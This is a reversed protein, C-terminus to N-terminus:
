LKWPTALGGAKMLTLSRDPQRGSCLGASPTTQQMGPAARTAQELPKGSNHATDHKESGPHCRKILDSNNKISPEDPNLLSHTPYAHLQQAPLRQKTRPGSQWQNVPWALGSQWPKRQIAAMYTLNIHHTWKRSIPVHVNYTSVHRRALPSLMCAAAAVLFHFISPYNSELYTETVKVLTHPAHCYDLAHHTQTGKRCVHM